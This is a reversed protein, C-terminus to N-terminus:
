EAEGPGGSDTSVRRLKALTAPGVGDIGLLEDDSAADIQEPTQYGAGQLAERVADSVDLSELSDPDIETISGDALAAQYAVPDDITGPRPNPPLTPDLMPESAPVAGAPRETEITAGPHRRIYREAWAARGHLRTGVETIVVVEPNTDM